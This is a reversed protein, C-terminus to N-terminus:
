HGAGRTGSAALSRARRGLDLTDPWSLGDCLALVRADPGVLLLRSPHVINAIQRGDPLAIPASVDEGLAFGLGGVIKLVEDRGGTLMTWRAPDAGIKSAYAALAEPTDNEPDVSISVLRVVSGDLEGQLRILHSHIVPCVTPCHLFSFALITWREKFLDLGVASGSADVLEFESLRMEPMEPAAGEAKLVPATRGSRASGASIVMAIALLAAVLLAVASLAFPVNWRTPRAPDSLREARETRIVPAPPSAPADARNM